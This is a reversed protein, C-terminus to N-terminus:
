GAGNKNTVPKTLTTNYRNLNQKQALTGKLRACLCLTFYNMLTLGLLCWCEYRIMARSCAWCQCTNHSFATVEKKKIRVADTLQQIIM